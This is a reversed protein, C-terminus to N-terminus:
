LLTTLSDPIPRDLIAVELFARMDVCSAGKHLLWVLPRKGFPHQPNHGFGDAGLDTWCSAIKHRVPAKWHLEGPTDGSSSDTSNFRAGIALIGSCPWM